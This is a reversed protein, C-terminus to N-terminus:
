VSPRLRRRSSSRLKEFIVSGKYVRRLAATPTSDNSADSLSTALSLVLRAIVFHGAAAERGVVGSGGFCWALRLRRQESITSIARKTRLTTKVAQDVKHRQLGLGERDLKRM